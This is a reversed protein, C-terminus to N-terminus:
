RWRTWRRQLGLHLTLTIPRTGVAWTTRQDNVRQQMAPRHPLEPGRDRRRCGLLPTGDSYLSSDPNHQLIAAQDSIAFVHPPNGNRAPVWQLDVGGLGMRVHRSGGVM